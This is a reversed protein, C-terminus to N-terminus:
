SIVHFACYPLLKARFLFLVPWGPLSKSRTRYVITDGRKDLVDACRKTMSDCLKQLVETPIRDWAGKNSEIIEDVSYSDKSDAYVDLM